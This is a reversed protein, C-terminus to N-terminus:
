KPRSQLGVVKALSSIMAGCHFIDRTIRGNRDDHVMKYTMFHILLIPLVEKEPIKVNEPIKVRANQIAPFYLFTALLIKGLSLGKM